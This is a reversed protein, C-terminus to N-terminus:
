GGSDQEGGGGGWKGWSTDRPDMTVCSWGGGCDEAAMDMAESNGVTGETGLPIISWWGTMIPAM